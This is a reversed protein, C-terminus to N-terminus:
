QDNQYQPIYTDNYLLIDWYYVGDKESFTAALYKMKPNLLLARNEDSDMLKEFVEHTSTTDHEVICEGCNWWTNMGDLVTYFRQDEGRSHSFDNTLEDARTQAAEDLRQLGYLYDYGYQGRVENVYELMEYTIEKVGENNTATPGRDVPETPQIADDTKLKADPDVYRDNAGIPLLEYGNVRITMDPATEVLDGNLYLVPYYFEDEDLARFGNDNATVELELGSIDKIKTNHAINGDKDRLRYKRRDICEIVYKDNLQYASFTDIKREVPSKDYYLKNDELSIVHGEYVFFEVPEGDVTMSMTGGNNAITVKEANDSTVTLEDPYLGYECFSYTGEVNVFVARDDDFRIFQCTQEPISPALRGGDAAVPEPKSETEAVAPKVPEPEEKINKNAWLFGAGIVFGTCLCIINKANIISKGIM